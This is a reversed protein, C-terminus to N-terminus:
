YMAMSPKVNPKLAPLSGEVLTYIVGGLVLAGGGSLIAILVIDAEPVQRAISQLFPAWMDVAVAEVTQKQEASLGGGENAEPTALSTSLM